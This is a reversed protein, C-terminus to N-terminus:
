ICFVAETAESERGQRMATSLYIICSAAEYKGCATHTRFFFVFGGGVFDWWEFFVGRFLDVAVRRGRGGRSPTRRFVDWAHAWARM